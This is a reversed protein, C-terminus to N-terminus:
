PIKEAYAYKFLNNEFTLYSAFYIADVVQLFDSFTTSLMIVREFDLVNGQKM